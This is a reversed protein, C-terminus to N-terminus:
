DRDSDLDNLAKLVEAVSGTSAAAEAEKSHMLQNVAELAERPTRYKKQGEELGLFLVFGLLGAIMGGWSAAFLFGNAVPSKGILQGILAGL